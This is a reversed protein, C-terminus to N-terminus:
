APTLAEPHVVWWTGDRDLCCAYSHPKTFGWLMMRVTRPKQLVRDFGFSEELGPVDQGVVVTGPTLDSDAARETLVHGCDALENLVARIAEAESDRTKGRGHSGWPLNPATHPVAKFLWKGAPAKWVHGVVGAIPGITHTANGRTFIAM